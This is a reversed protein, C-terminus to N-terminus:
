GEHHEPPDQNVTGWVVGLQELFCCNISTELGCLVLQKSLFCSLLNVEWPAMATRACPGGGEIVHAQGFPCTVLCQICVKQQSQGAHYLGKWAGLFPSQGQMRPDQSTRELSLESM